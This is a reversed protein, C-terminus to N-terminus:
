SLWEDEWEGMQGMRWNGGKWVVRLKWYKDKQESGLNEQRDILSDM